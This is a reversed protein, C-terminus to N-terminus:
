SPRQDKHLRRLENLSLKTGRHVGPARRVVGGTVRAEQGRFDIVLHVLMRASGRHAADVADRWGRSITGCCSFVGVSSLAHQASHFAGPTGHRM